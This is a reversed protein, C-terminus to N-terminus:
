QQITVNEDLEIIRDYEASTIVDSNYVLGEKKNM